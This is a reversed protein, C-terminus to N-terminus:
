SLYIAYLKNVKLFLEPLKNRFQNPTEFYNETIVSLFEYQNEFAYARFYDAEILKDRMAKDTLFELINKFNKIFTIAEYSTSKVFSFYLAHTFEHIGLNLNDDEIKVGDVVGQWSFVITRARPNTEGKHHQKTLQSFYNKPYIIINDFQNYLYRSMRFTLMVAISSIVVRKIPTIVVQERAIFNHAKIFRIVRYEFKKKDNKSLRRYFSFNGEIIKKHSNDLKYFYYLPNTM